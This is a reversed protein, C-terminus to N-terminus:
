EAPRFRWISGETNVGAALIQGDPTWGAYLIDGAFNTPIHAAKGTHPDLISVQWYWTMADLATTVLIKGDSNVANSALPVDGLRVDDAIEIEEENGSLLCIRFLHVSLNAGIRQAVIEKGNPHVAISNASTMRRPTGGAVSVEWLTHDHIYYLTAGDSSSALQTISAADPVVIRRLIRRDSLSALAISSREGSGMLFAVLDKGVVTIPESTEETTDVLPTALKNTKAVLLRPRGSILGPLVVRGDPLEITHSRLSYTEARAIRQLSGGAPDIKVIELTNNQQDVFISGNDAMDIGSFRGTLTFLVRPRAGTKRDIAVVRHLDEAPADSLVSHERDVSVPWLAGNVGLNEDIQRIQKSELNIIQVHAESDNGKSATSRGFFVAESGDAFARVPAFPDLASATLYAPLPEIRNREPWFRYLQAKGDSASRTVLLSGDPLPEPFHANDLVLREEGGVAPISYINVGQTTGRTFYIKSGDRAWAAHIRVGQEPRKTLVDWVGTEADMLAVHTQADLMVIFAVRRGDPSVRPGWAVTSGGVLLSGSWTTQGPKRSNEIGIGAVFTLACLMFVAIMIMAAWRRSLELGAVHVAHRMGKGIEQRAEEINQLRFHPDKELCHQILNAIRTPTSSPLLGMDPDASLIAAITDSETDGGFAQRGTLMEYLVCGFAWIDTRKDVNWGRAQEPSMYAATGLVAKRTTVFTPLSHTTALAPQQEFIRALGFDLLKIHDGATFKINAPKLDRHIVNKAHAAEIGECIENAVRLAEDLAMPGRAIRQALTEGEVLELILFRSDSIEEIEYISAINVHNLSALVEAERQFRAIRDPDAAFEEPLTKIAVDRKLRPDHARYVEGMGGTGLIDIVEYNGVRIGPALRM